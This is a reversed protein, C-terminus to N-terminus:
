DLSGWDENTYNRVSSHFFGLSGLCYAQMILTLHRRRMEKAPMEGKLTLLQKVELTTTALRSIVLMVMFIAM